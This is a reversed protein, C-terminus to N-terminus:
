CVARMKKKRLRDLDSLEDTSGEERSVTYYKGVNMGGYVSSFTEHVSSRLFAAAAVVSKRGFVGRM